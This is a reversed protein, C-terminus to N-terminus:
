ENLEPPSPEFGLESATQRLAMLPTAASQRVSPLVRRLTSQIEDRQDFANVVDNAFKEPEIEAIDVQCAGIQLNAFLQETKFEYAVAFVPLECNMSLIAMHMRTSIVFSATSLLDVLEDPRHFETDVTAVSQCEPPLRDFIQKAVTSDDFRYNPLGQCTSVFRVHVGRERVLKTVAEAISKFYLERGEEESREGFRSWERVSVFVTPPTASHSKTPHELDFVVDHCVTAPVDPMIRRLYGLSREDRLFVHNVKKLAIPLFRQIYKKEFPGMSQTFLYTPKGTLRALFFAFIRQKLDYHDVLYTGGTAVIADANLLAEISENRVRWVRNVLGGLPSSRILTSFVMSVLGLRRWIGTKGPNSAFPETLFRGVSSYLQNAETPKMDFAVIETDTGFARRVQGLVAYLIAADGGNQVVCNLILVKAPRSKPHDKM